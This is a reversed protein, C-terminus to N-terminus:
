WYLTRCSLEDSQDVCNVEGNCREQVNNTSLQVTTYITCLSVTCSAHRLVNIPICAGSNCSFETDNCSTLFLKPPM